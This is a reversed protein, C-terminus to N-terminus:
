LNILYNRIKQKKKKIKKKSGNKSPVWVSCPIKDLNHSSVYLNVFYTKLYIHDPSFIM